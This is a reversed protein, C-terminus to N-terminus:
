FSVPVGFASHVPQRCNSPLSAVRCLFRREEATPCCYKGQEIVLLVVSCSVRIGHYLNYNNYETHSFIDVNNTLNDLLM